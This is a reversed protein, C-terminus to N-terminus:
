GSSWTAAPPHAALPPRRGGAGRRQGRRVRGAGMLSGDLAQREPITALVQEVEDGFGYRGLAGLVPAADTWELPRRPWAALDDGGHALVLHRRGADVM